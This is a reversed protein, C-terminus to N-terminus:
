GKRATVACQWQTHAVLPWSGLADVTIPQSEVDVFGTYVHVAYLLRQEYCNWWHRAHKWRPEKEEWGCEASSPMTGYGEDGYCRDWPNEMCSEVLLWGEPDLGRSWRQIIRLVDPGVICVEAGSPISAEIHQLFAPVDPWPIHELVHGLYVREIDDIGDLPQMPDDVLIDPDVGHGRHADLNVWPEPARYPGCGVNVWSM